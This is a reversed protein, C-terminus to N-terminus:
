DFDSERIEAFAEPNARYQADLKDGLASLKPRPRPDRIIREWEADGSLEPLIMPLNKVLTEREAPRLARIAAEIEKVTIM